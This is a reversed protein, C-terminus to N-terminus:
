GCKPKVVAYWIFLTFLRVMLSDVSQGALANMTYDAAGYKTAGLKGNSGWQEFRLSWETNLGINNNRLGLIALSNSNDTEIDIVFEYSM